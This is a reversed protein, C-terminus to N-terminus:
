EHDAEKQEEETINFIEQLKFNFIVAILISASNLYFVIMYFDHYSNRYMAEFVNVVTVLLAFAICVHVTSFFIKHNLNIKQEEMKILPWMVVVCFVGTSLVVLLFSLLSAVEYVTHYLLQSIFIFLLPSFFFSIKKLIETGRETMQTKYNNM